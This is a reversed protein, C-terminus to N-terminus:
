KNFLAIRIMVLFGKIKYRLDALEAKQIIETFWDSFNKEKDINFTTKAM